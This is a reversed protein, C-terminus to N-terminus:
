PVRFMGLLSRANGSLIMDKEGDSLPLARLHEIETKADSWPSDSGFLIKDAGHARAIRVFVERPYYEFGMSTDLCINTGILYREVDDWEQHGGLHAAVIVGGRMADVVHRFRKPSSKYPPHFGVDMGAHFLLILGRSLAYDYVKLAWPEDIIFQQYEPHFKLGKLGMSVVLDIDRRYDDTYPFIGGFSILRESQISRAWENLRVTQSQKTVVPQAVSIDVGSLDMHRILGAHTGDAVPQLPTILDSTLADMARKALEDPFIHTHFDVIM